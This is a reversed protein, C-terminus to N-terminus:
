VFDRLTLVGATHWHWPARSLDTDTNSLSRPSPPCTPAPHVHNATIQPSLPQYTFYSSLQPQIRAETGLWMAEAGGQESLRWEGADRGARAESGAVGSASQSQLRLTEPKAPRSHLRLNLWLYLGLAPKGQRKGSHHSQKRRGQHDSPKQFTAASDGEPGGNKQGPPALPPNTPFPLTISVPTKRPLSFPARPFFPDPAPPKFKPLRIRWDSGM